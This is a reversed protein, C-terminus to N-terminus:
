IFKETKEDLKLRSVDPKIKFWGSNERKGPQYKSDIRKIVVGEECADFAANLRELFHTASQLKTRECFMLKGREETALNRLVNQRQDYTKTTLNEDNLYIVDFICFCPTLKPDGIKVNKAAMNEAKTLFIEEDRNWVMMEGDFIANRLNKSLLRFFDPSFTGCTSDCGFKSTFDDEKSNRSFYKFQMGDIHVQCREGDMKTEVFYEHQSLLEGIQSIFGRECLMSRVPSFLEIVQDGLIGNPNKAILECVRSLHTFHNFLNLADPHFLQLVRKQGLGLHMRKLIIRTLWKMELASMKQTLKM